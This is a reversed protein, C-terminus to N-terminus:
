SPRNRPLACTSWVPRSCARPWRSSPPDPFQAARELLAGVRQRSSRYDFVLVRGGDATTFGAWGADPDVGDPWVDRIQGVFVESPDVLDATPGACAVYRVDDNVRVQPGDAGLVIM